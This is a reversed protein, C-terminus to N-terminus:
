FYEITKAFEDSSTGPHSLYKQAHKKGNEVFKDRLQKNEFFQKIEDEINSEMSLELVADDKIYELEYKKDDLSIDIIPIEM